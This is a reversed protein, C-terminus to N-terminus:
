MQSILCLLLSFFHHVSQPLLYTRLFHRYCCLYFFIACQTPPPPCCIQPFFSIGCSFFVQFIGDGRLLIHRCFCVFLPVHVACGSSFFLFFVSIGQWFLSSVLGLLYGSFQLCFFSALGGGRPKTFRDKKGVLSNSLLLGFFCSRVVVCGCRVYVRCFFFFLLGQWLFGLSHFFFPSHPQPFGLGLMSCLFVSISFM